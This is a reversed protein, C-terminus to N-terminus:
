AYSVTVNRRQRAARMSAGIGLFGLILMAWTGPEPVASGVEKVSLTDTSSFAFARDEFGAATYAFFYEGDFQDLYFDNVGVEVFSNNNKGFIAWGTGFNEAAANDLTFATSGVAFKIATLTYLKTVTNFSLSFSGAHSLITGGTSAEFEYDTIIEAANAPATGLLLAPAILGIAMDRNKM